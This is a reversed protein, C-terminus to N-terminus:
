VQPANALHHRFRKKDAVSWELLSCALSRWTRATERAPTGARCIMLLLTGAIIAGLSWIFVMTSVRASAAAGRHKRVFLWFSQFAIKRHLEAAGARKTSRGGLHVIPASALYFVTWGARRARMCYDMDEAYFMTEDLLGIAEVVRRGILMATGPVAPAERDDLHDWEGLVRGNFLRTKPFLRSLFSLDCWVNWASPFDSACDFQIAGTATFLKPGVIGAKPHAVAFDVMRRLSGRHVVTDPNLLLFSDGRAARIGVNNGRSYGLNTDNVILRAWPFQERVMSATGDQSANDVVIVEAWQPVADEELSRLCDGLLDRVEWTTIIM